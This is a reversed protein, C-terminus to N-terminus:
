ISSQLPWLRWSIVHKSLAEDVSNNLTHWQMMIKCLTGMHNKKVLTVTGTECLTQLKKNWSFVRTWNHDTNDTYTANLTLPTEPSKPNLIFCKCIITRTLTYSFKMGDSNSNKIWTTRHLYYSSNTTQPLFNCQNADPIILTDCIETTSAWSWCSGCPGSCDSGTHHQAQKTQTIM